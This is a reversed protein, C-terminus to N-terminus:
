YKLFRISRLAGGTGQGMAASGRFRLYLPQVGDPLPFRAEHETWVNSFAVPIEGLKALIKDSGMRVSGGAALVVAACSPKQERRGLQLIKGLTNSM